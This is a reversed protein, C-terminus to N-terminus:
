IPRRLTSNRYGYGVYLVLGIALWVVFRVWAEPPLGGMLFICAAAGLLTVPWVFPVRFPRPRDPAKYRLV